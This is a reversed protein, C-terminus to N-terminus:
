EILKISKIYVTDYDTNGGNKVQFVITDAVLDTGEITTIGSMCDKKVESSNGYDSSSAVTVYLAKANDTITVPEGDKYFEAEIRVRSFKKDTLGYNAGYKSYISTWGKIDEAVTAKIANKDTDYASDGKLYVDHAVNEYTFDKMYVTSETPASFYLNLGTSLSLADYYGVFEQWEDTITMSKVVSTYSTDNVQVGYQPTIDEEGAARRLKFSIKLYKGSYNTTDLYAVQRAGGWCEKLSTVKEDETFSELKGDDDIIYNAAYAVDKLNRTVPETNVAEGGIPTVSGSFEFDTSIYDSPIGTIAATYTIENNEEDKEYIKNQGGKVSITKTKGGVKITIGCDDAKDANKIKIAFRMAQTNSEDNLRLTAGVVEVTPTDDDAAKATKGSVAFGSFVLTLMLVLSMLKRGNRSIKM